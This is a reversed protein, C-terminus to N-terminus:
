FREVTTFLASAHRRLQAIALDLDPVFPDADGHLLLVRPGKRMSGHAPRLPKADLVGHFSVVCRLRTALGETDKAAELAARGGLCWGLAAVKDPRVQPSHALLADLAAAVRRRLVGDEALEARRKLAWESEWGCGREDGFLDAVFM